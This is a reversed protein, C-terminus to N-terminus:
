QNIFNIKQQIKTCQNYGLFYLVILELCESFYLLFIWNLLHLIKKNYAIPWNNCCSCPIYTNAYGAAVDM